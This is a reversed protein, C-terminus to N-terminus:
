EEERDIARGLSAKVLQGILTRAVYPKDPPVPDPTTRGFETIRDLEEGLAEMTAYREDPDKRICTMIVIELRPDIDRAFTSPPPVQTWVQHALTDLEDDVEFAQRGALMRYAVMGLGYIDSRGDVTEGVVQEPSMTAPTGMVIGAATLNSQPVKSLGFDVVKLEYAAGPEGLLFLNDAKVDRHIIGARHAAGLASAAQQLAPVAMEKPMRAERRLYDGVTEGVLFEMVLFPAGDEERVGEEFVTVISPHGIVSAM